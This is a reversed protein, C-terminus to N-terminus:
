PRAHVRRVGCTNQEKSQACARAALPRPRPALAREATELEGIADALGPCMAVRFDKSGGGLASAPRVKSPAAASPLIEEERRGVALEDEPDVEHAGPAEAVQAAPLFSGAFGINAPGSRPHRRAREKGLRALLERRADPEQRGRREVRLECM